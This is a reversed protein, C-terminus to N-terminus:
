MKYKKTLANVKIKISQLTIENTACLCDNIIHALQIMEKEKMGRTTVTLTGLRIGSPDIVSKCDNPIMNKNTIIGVAELLKSADNGSIGMGNTWTDVLFMHSDTGDSIIQWGMNSLTSSLARANIIVQKITNKFKKTSAEKLAVGIAAITNMHPGGQIGPFIAKNIANIHEKKAFILAARPGRLSKHTTATVVDAYNFPTPYEKAAILGAIHSMDVMFLAGVKKAINQFAKFDIIKSYATYGAVIIDPKHRIAHEKITKYNLLGTDKDLEYPIQIWRNGTISSKHGHTLHGGMSLTLGMIKGGPPILANYVAFNAPSGSNAQVNVDWVNEDLDYLKLARDKVLLELKDVVQNGCYYRKGPYGEAYKNTFVSGLAELVDDSVINESAILDITDEQRKKEANILKQIEKDKM